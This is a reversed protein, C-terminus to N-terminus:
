FEIDEVYIEYEDELLGNRAVERQIAEEASEMTSFIGFYLGNEVVVYVKKIM